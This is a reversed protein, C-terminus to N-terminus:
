RGPANGIGMPPLSIRAGIPDTETMGGNGIGMPPLSDEIGTRLACGCDRERDGHPTILDPAHSAVGNLGVNGIGMPPLSIFAWSPRRPICPNGIGMPPLSDSYHMSALEALELCNGIGM